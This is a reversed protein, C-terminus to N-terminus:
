QVTTSQIGRLVELQLRDLRAELSEIKDTMKKVSKSHLEFMYTVKEKQIEIQRNFNYVLGAVGLVLIVMYFYMIANKNGGVM